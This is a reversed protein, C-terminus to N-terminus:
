AAKPHRHQHRNPPQPGRRTAELAAQEASMAAADPTASDVLGAIRDAARDLLSRDWTLAGGMGGRRMPLPWTGARVETDFVTASVGVYEAAQQRTLFRRTPLPLQAVM